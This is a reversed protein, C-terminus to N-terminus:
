PLEARMLTMDDIADSYFNGGKTLLDVPTGIDVIVGNELIYIVDAISAPKIRHSIFLIGIQSKVSNLTELYFKETERDLSSTGEDILLVKPSRYLARALALLQKQGGSLKVGDEGLYASYSNPIRKFYEDFGNEECWNKVGVLDEKKDSLAINFLLTNNFIKVEQPVVGIMKRYLSIDIEDISFENVTISGSKHPYFKLLLQVLTSKGSGSEGLLVSIKGKQIALTINDLLRITGPYCFSLSNVTIREIDNIKQRDMVEREKPRDTHTLEAMREFAVFAEQVQINSMILFGISPIITSSLTFIAVLEGIQMVESMVLYSAYSMVLLTSLAGLFDIVTNFKIKLKGFNYIQNQYYSYNNLTIKKFLAEIENIKIEGIGSITDIYNSENNAHASMVSKQSAAVKSNLRYLILTYIPLVLLILSGIRPSYIFIAIMVVISTLLQIIVNGVINSVVVQIRRIDNMRSILDGTKKTDFFSKPLDMISAFFNKIMRNNLDRSQIILFKGRIFNLLVRIGLVAAFISVALILKSADKSPIVQDILKQSFIASAIMFTSIIVGLFISVLLINTDKALMQKFWQYKQQSSSNNCKKFEDTPTLALLTKSKWQSELESIDWESVGSGPDGVLAKSGTIRYLVVFHQLNSELDLHIIAPGELKLLQSIDEAEYGEADFGMSNAAQYLGLLSTGQRNKGSLHSVEDFTANGNYYKIVSVLCAIGCDTQDHQRVFTKKIQKINM